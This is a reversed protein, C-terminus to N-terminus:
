LIIIGILLGKGFAIWMMQYDSICFKQQMKRILRKHKTALQNM